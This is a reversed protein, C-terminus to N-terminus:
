DILSGVPTERSAVRTATERAILDLNSPRQGGIAALLGLGDDRLTLAVSAVLAPSSAVDAAV